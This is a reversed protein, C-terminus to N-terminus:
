AYASGEKDVDGHSLKVAEDSPKDDEAKHKPWTQVLKPEAGRLGQFCPLLLNFKQEPSPTPMKQPLSMSPRHQSGVIGMRLRMQAYPVDMGDM